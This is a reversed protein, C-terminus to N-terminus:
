KPIIEEETVIWTMKRDHGAVPIRDFLRFQFCVGIAAAPHRSLFRDYYGKGRGLRNLRRDFAIGPVIILEPETFAKEDPGAPEMIHYAGKRLSEEGRYPLLIMEGDRVAPLLIQRSHRWKELFTATQVEDPLAHYCAICHSKRFLPLQEVRRWIERSYRRQAEDTCNKKLATMERRWQRKHEEAEM